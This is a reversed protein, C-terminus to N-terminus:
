TDFGALTLENDTYTVQRDQLKKRTYSSDSNKLLILLQTLYNSYSHNGGLLQLKSDTSSISSLPNGFEIQYQENIHKYGLYEFRVKTVFDNINSVRGRWSYPTDNDLKNNFYDSFKNNGVAVPSAHSYMAVSINTPNGSNELTRIIDYCCLISLAGGLSHGTCWLRYKHQTDQTLIGEVYDMVVKRPTPTSNNGNRQSYLNYFGSHVMSGNSTDFNKILAFNSNQIWEASNSTGRWVFFVDTFEEDIQSEIIYGIPPANPQYVSYMVHQPINSPFRPGSVDLKWNTLSNGNTTWHKFMEHALTVMKMLETAMILQFNNTNTTPLSTSLALPDVSAVYNYLSLLNVFPPFSLIQSLAVGKVGEIAANTYITGYNTINGGNIQGGDNNTITGNVTNIISGTATNTISGTASNVITGNNKITGSNQIVGNNRIIGNNIFTHSSIFLTQGLPITIINCPLSLFKSTMIWTNHPGKKAIDSLSFPPCSPIRGTNWRSKKQFGKVTYWNNPKKTSM